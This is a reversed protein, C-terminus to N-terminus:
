PTPASPWTSTARRWAPSSAPAARGRHHPQHAARGAAPRSASCRPQDDSSRSGTSCRRPRGPLAARGAGRHAGDARGPPRGAGGVLLASVAVVRRARGRRRGAAPPADPAAGALDADIEAIARQQAAPSRSRCARRPVAGRLRARRRHPPAIGKATRELARKRRVLALQVRLLEDFVLRKRAATGQRGHRRARPHGPVRHHPRGPGFRASCRPPFRTPSSAPGSSCRRWGRPSTGADHRRAKESQPYM